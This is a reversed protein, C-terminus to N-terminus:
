PDGGFLHGTMTELWGPEKHAVIKDIEGSDLYMGGCGYCADVIVGRYNVEALELGCKPCRMWHLQKLRDREGTALQRADQRRQRRLQEMAERKFYEEEQDSKQYV